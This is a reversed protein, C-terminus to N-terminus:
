QQWCIDFQAYMNCTSCEAPVVLPLLILMRLIQHHLLYSLLQKAGAAPMALEIM